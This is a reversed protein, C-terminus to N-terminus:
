KDLSCISKLMDFPDSHNVVPFLRPDEGCYIKQQGFRFHTLLECYVPDHYRSGRCTDSVLLTLLLNDFLLHQGQAGLAPCSSSSGIPSIACAM